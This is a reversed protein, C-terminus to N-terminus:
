SILSTIQMVDTKSTNLYCQMLKNRAKTSHNRTNENTENQEADSARIETQHRQKTDKGHGAGADAETHVKM